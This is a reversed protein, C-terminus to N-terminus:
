RSWIGLLREKRSYMSNGHDAAHMLHRTCSDAQLDSWAIYEARKHLNTQCYKTELPTNQRVPARQPGWFEVYPASSLDQPLSDLQAVPLHHGLLLRSLAQYHAEEMEWRELGAPLSIHPRDLEPLYCVGGEITHHTLSLRLYSCLEPFDTFDLGIKVGLYGQLSNHLEISDELKQNPFGLETLAGLVLDEHALQLRELGLMRRLLRLPQRSGPLEVVRVGGKQSQRHKM